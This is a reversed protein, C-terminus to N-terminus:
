YPTYNETVVVVVTVAVVVAWVSDLSRSWALWHHGRPDEDLLVLTAPVWWGWRTGGGEM